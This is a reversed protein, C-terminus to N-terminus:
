AGHGTQSPVIWGKKNRRIKLKQAIEMGKMQREDMRIMEM